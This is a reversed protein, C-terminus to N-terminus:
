WGRFRPDRREAFARLGEQADDTTLVLEQGWAEENLAADRDTDLAHNVLRKTVALTRTPGAALRQALAAAAAALEAAAVVRGVLGLRLAEAAPVDEGLLYLRKAVHPGVLRTLLYAGAADPAIGRRVFVPVLKATDAMVVLDCALALHMGAGAATGNVAAVVPKDCDLVATVVRQWGTAIGRAVDGQARDPAEEPKPPAPLPVRLDAGTCFARDGAGTLLVARVALDASAEALAAVLAERTRWDLANHVEPRDLTLTLVAGAREARLGPTADGSM